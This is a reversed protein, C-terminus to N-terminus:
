HIDPGNSIKLDETSTEVILYDGDSLTKAENLAEIYIQDM